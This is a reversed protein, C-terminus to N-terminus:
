KGREGRRLSNLAPNKQKLKESIDAVEEMKESLGYSLSAVIRRSINQRGKTEKEKPPPILRLAFPNWKQTLTRVGSNKKGRLKGAMMPQMEQKSVAACHRARHEALQRQQQFGPTSKKKERCFAATM